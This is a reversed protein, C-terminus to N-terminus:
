KKDKMYPSQVEIPNFFAAIDVELGEAILMLMDLSFSVKIKPAEIKSLHSVSVGIKEALEKQSLGRVNRYFAVRKGVEKFTPYFRDLDKNRM